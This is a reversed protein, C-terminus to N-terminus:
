TSAKYLTPDFKEKFFDQIAAKIYWKKFNHAELFENNLKSEEFALRLATAEAPLFMPAFDFEHIPGVWDKPVYYAVFEHLKIALAEDGTAIKPM